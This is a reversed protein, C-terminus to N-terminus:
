RVVKALPMPRQYARVEEPTLPRGLLRAKERLGRRVDRTAILRVTVLLAFLVCWLVVVTGLIEPVSM